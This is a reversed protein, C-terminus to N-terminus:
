MGGLHSVLAVQGSVNAEKMSTILAQQLMPGVTGCRRDKRAHGCVLILNAYPSPHVTFQLRTSKGYIIFDLLAPARRPTINAIIVNDPMLLVDCANRQKAYPSPLSANTVLIRKTTPPPPSSDQEPDYPHFTNNPHDARSLSAQREHIAEILAKALGDDEIHAPWDTKGTLIILHIAYPPVTNHLPRTQDINLNPPVVPHLACPKQCGECEVPQIAPLPESVIPPLCAQVCDSPCSYSSYLSSVCKNIWEM